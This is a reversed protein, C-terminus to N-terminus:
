NFSTLDNRFHQSELNKTSNSNWDIIIYTETFKFEGCLPVLCYEWTSGKYTVYCYPYQDFDRLGNPDTDDAVSCYTPLKEFEM